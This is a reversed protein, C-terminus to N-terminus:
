LKPAVWLFGVSLLLLIFFILPSIKKHTIHEVSKEGSVSIKQLSRQQNTIRLNKWHENGGVFFDVQSSDQDILVEHWGTKGAWTKGHWVNKIAPDDMLSVEVSDIRVTPKEAAAIIEFELPEDQFYPSPTTFLLDYKKMEKRAVQEILPSWLEAYLEKEGALQIAYTNGLLQFGSKGKGYQYYGSVVRGSPESLINFLKKESSITVPTTPNKLKKDQIIVQASDSKIRTLTVDLFRTAKASPASIDICTVIGLGYKMAEKMEHLETDSLSALSSADTLILDFNQLIVSNIKGINKQPTNVFETRYRDKSIKYRLTLRHHKTELFNKLFRIEASPYDCLFLISLPKEGMVQIPINESYVIKGLSDTAILTYLYLGSNKPTFTFAFSHVNKGRVLVSDEAIGAAILKLTYSRGNSNFIGKVQSSHNVVYNKKRDYATFGKPIASPYVTVSSTDIYELMYDPIGQGLFYFNGKLNGLDRYNELTIADKNSVGKIAYLQHNPNTKLWSDLVMKNYDPTLVIIDSSKKLTQIPRLILCAIALVAVCVAVLRAALLPQNRKVELWGLLCLALIATIFVWLVPFLSQSFIVNM